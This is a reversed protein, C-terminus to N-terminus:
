VGDALAPMDMHLKHGPCQCDRNNIRTTIDKKRSQTSRNTVCQLLRRAVLVENKEKKWMIASMRDVDITPGNPPGPVSTHSVFRWALLICWQLSAPHRMAVPVSTIASVFTVLTCSFVRVCCWVCQFCCWYSLLMPVM